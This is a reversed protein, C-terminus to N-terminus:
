EEPGFCDAYGSCQDCSPARCLYGGGRECLQKYFFRKWKMDRDNLAKLPPYAHHMLESLAARDPLGLDRWLHDGGLCATAIIRSLQPPVGPQRYDELLAILEECEDRRLAMLEERLISRRELLDADETDLVLVECAGLFFREFLQVFTERTLGLYLPLCGRGLRPGLFLHALLHALHRGTEGGAAAAMLREFRNETQLAEQAM